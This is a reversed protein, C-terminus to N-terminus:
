NTLELPLSDSFPLPSSSNKEPASTNATPAPKSGAIPSSLIKGFNKDRERRERAAQGDPHAHETELQSLAAKTQAPRMEKNADCIEAPCACPSRLCFKCAYAYSVQGARPGTTCQCEEARCYDCTWRFTTPRQYAGWMAPNWTPKYYPAPNYYVPFRGAGNNYFNTVIRPPRGFHPNYNYPNFEGKPGHGDATHECPDSRRARCADCTGCPEEGATVDCFSCTNLDRPQVCHRCIRKQCPFGDRCSPCRGCPVLEGGKCIPCVAGATTDLPISMPSTVPEATQITQPPVQAVRVPSSTRQVAEVSPAPRLDRRVAVDSSVPPTLSAASQRSQAVVTGCSVAFLVLSGFWLLNRKTM